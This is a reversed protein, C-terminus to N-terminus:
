LSERKRAIGMAGRLTRQIAAQHPETPEGTDSESEDMVSLDSWTSKKDDEDKKMPFTFIWELKKSNDLFLNTKIGSEDM